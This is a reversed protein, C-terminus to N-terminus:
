NSYIATQSTMLYMLVHQPKTVHVKAYVKDTPDWNGGLVSFINISQNTFCPGQAFPHLRNTSHQAVNQIKLYM